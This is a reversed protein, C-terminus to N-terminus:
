HSAKGLLVLFENGGPQVDIAKEIRWPIYGAEYLDALMDCFGECTFVHCHLSHFEGEMKQARAVADRLSFRKKDLVKRDFGADWIDAATVDKKFYLHKLIQRFDPITLGRLHCDILDAVDTEARVIDFTYRKDPVALSIHGDSATIEGLQCLWGIVDPIHEIVHNAIVIDFDAFGSNRVSSQIDGEVVLDVDIIGTKNIYHAELQEKSLWDAITVNAEGPHFTPSNLAGIEMIRTSSGILHEAMARRAAKKNVRRTKM